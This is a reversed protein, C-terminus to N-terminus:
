GEKLVNRKILFSNIKNGGPLKLIDNSVIANTHLLIVLYIIAGALVSLLVSIDNRLLSNNILIFLFKDSLFYLAFAVVGMMLSAFFPRYFINVYKVAIGTAKRIALQNLVCTILLGISSGIVAGKVNISPIAILIYNAALKFIMGILMNVPPIYAKGVGILTATQVSIIATIIMVWSGIQMLDSGQNNSFFVLTLVPKALIALGVAAPVTIMLVVKFSENIKRHLMSNDKAAKASSIAPILASPLAATIALPVNLIRQYQTTLIGYLGTAKVNSFGGQMMRGVCFKLDIIDGANIAVMGLVAPLCYALIMKIVEKNTIQPGSYDSGSIQNIRENRNRWYLFFLFSAAGLAGMSTGITSGAAAKDVGYKILVAAFVITLVSNLAQEIVQSVASPIMNQGGQFYGRFASSISAFLLAPSLALIMLAADPQSIQGSIWGAGLAMFSGFVLGLAILMSAAIRFIKQAGRYDGIATRESLLKSIAVPVGASTLAFILIYIRYGANIVGNGYNGVIMTQIPVYALALIKNIVGAISLVAFGKATTQKSKM